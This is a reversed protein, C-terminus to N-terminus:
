IRTKRISIEANWTGTGYLSPLPKDQGWVSTTLLLGGLLLAYIRKM